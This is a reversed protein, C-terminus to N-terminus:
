ADRYEMECDLVTCTGGSPLACLTYSNFHVYRDAEVMEISVIQMPIDLFLDIDPDGTEIVYVRDGIRFASNLEDRMAKNYAPFLENM